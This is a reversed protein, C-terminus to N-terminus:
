LPRNSASPSAMRFSRSVLAFCNMLLPPPRHELAEVLQIDLRQDVVRRCLTLGGAIQGRGACSRAATARDIVTRLGRDPTIAAWHTRPVTHHPAQKYRSYINM